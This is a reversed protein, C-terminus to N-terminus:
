GDDETPYFVNPQPFYELGHMKLELEDFVLPHLGGVIFSFPSARFGPSFEETVSAGGVYPKQELVLVRKGAKALYAGCTLGNHGGGVVIADFSM